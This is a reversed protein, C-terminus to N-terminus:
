REYKEKRKLVQDRLGNETATQGVISGAEKITKLQICISFTLIACVIGILIIANKNKM